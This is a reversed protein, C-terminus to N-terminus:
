KTRRECEAAARGVAEGMAWCCGAVRASAQALPEASLCKGAAWLNGVGRVKLARLPIEYHRPLYELSVGSAPDWFEIPWACRAAVDEFRTGARVEEVSLRYEGAIRGGDRIGLSGTAELWAGSFEPRRRLFGLLRDRARRARRVAAARVAPERWRGGLPLALKVYVEDEHIGVDLWAQACAPPLAGEAAAKRIGSLLQISEPFRMAGSAVGRLRFILGAAAADGDAVLTPDILRVLEASGSADVVAHPALARDGLRLHGIRGAELHVEDVKRRLLVTIRREERLWDEVVRRYVGPEVSLTWTRGIRRPLAVPSAQQLREALEAALGPNLIRGESDHLGGLTHILSHVVTGGVGGTKEVLCVRAGQRAASIAAALGAAGAGVVVVDCDARGKEFDGASM